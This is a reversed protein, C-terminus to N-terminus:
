CPDGWQPQKADNDKFNSNGQEDFQSPKTKIQHVCWMSIDQDFKDNRGFMQDMNTVNSVDWDSIDNNFNCYNFLRSMNTMKSVDTIPGFEWNAFVQHFLGCGPGEGCPANGHTLIIIEEGPHVDHVRSYFSGDPLYADYPGGRLEMKKTADYIHWVPGDHTEWAYPRPCPNNTGDEDRPCHGWCPHLEFDHEIVTERAWDTPQSDIKSVCWDKVSKDFSTADDFMHDMNEVNQTDWTSIDQNFSAANWFMYSMNTVNSVDWFVIASDFNDCRQFMGSMNIVNTTSTISTDVRFTASNGAFLETCDTSTLIVLEEGPDIYKHGNHDELIHGDMDYVTVNPNSFNVRASADSLHFIGGDHHDWPMPCSGPVPKNKDEWAKTNADWDTDVTVADLCWNSLDRNFVECSQFMQRMNSIGETNWKGIDINFNTTNVFMRFTSYTRNTPFVWDSMACNNMVTGNQWKTGQFMERFSEGDSLDWNGHEVIHQYHHDKLFLRFNVVGKTNTHPGFVFKTTTNNNFMEELSYGNSMGDTNSRSFVPQVVFDLGAPMRLQTLTPSGARYYPRGDMGWIKNVKSAGFEIERDTDMVHFVADEM